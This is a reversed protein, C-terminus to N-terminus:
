PTSGPDGRRTLRAWHKQMSQRSGYGLVAATQAWTYGQRFHLYRIAAREYYEVSDRMHRVQQYYADISEVPFTGALMQKTSDHLDM